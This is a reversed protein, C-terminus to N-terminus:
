RILHVIGRQFNMDGKSCNSKVNLSWIYVGNECLKNEFYGNWSAKPDTTEFLKQGWRDFVLFRYYNFSQIDSVPKFNVNINDNEGPTFANPVWVDGAGEYVAVLVSDSALFNCLKDRVTVKYTGSKSIYITSTTEGTNWITAYNVTDRIGTKLSVTDNECIERLPPGLDVTLIKRQTITITDRNSCNKNISWVSYLGPKNVRIRIGTDGTNWIYKSAIEKASLILDVQGCIITDKGLNIKPLPELTLIITDRKKCGSREIELWYLGSKKVILTDGTSSDSWLYSDFIRNKVELKKLLSDGCFITDKGLSIEKVGPLIKKKAIFSGCDTFIEVEYTGFATAKIKQATDDKIVINGGNIDTGKWKVKRTPNGADLEIDFNEACIFTDRGLRTKHQFSGAEIFVYSDLLPDGVDAIALKITYTKCAELKLNAKLITTYGDAQLTKEGLYNYNFYQTNRLHNINDISVPLTKGPVLAVNQEGTIGPGSIFFGFIDSVNKDVYEIYEESAFIYNFEIDETQPIFDFQLTAADYTPKTAYLDLLASGGTKIESTSSNGVNNPGKAGVAIGTSLIIGAEMQLKSDMGNEFFGCSRKYGNYVVNNTTIGKGVLVNTVLIYPAAEGIIIQSHAFFSVLLLVLTICFKRLRILLNYM